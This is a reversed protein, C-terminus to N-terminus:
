LCKLFLPHRFAQPVTGERLKQVESTESALNIEEQLENRDLMIINEAELYLLFVFQVHHKM